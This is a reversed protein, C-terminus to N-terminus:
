IYNITHGGIVYINDPSGISCLTDTILVTDEDGVSFVPDTSLQTAFSLECANVLVTPLIVVDYDNPPNVVDFHDITPIHDSGASLAFVPLYISDGETETLSWRRYNFGGLILTTLKKIDFLFMDKTSGYPLLSAASVDMASIELNDQFYHNTDYVNSKGLINLITGDYINIKGSLIFSTNLESNKGINRLVPDGNDVMCNRYTFITPCNVFEDLYPNYASLSLSYGPYTLDSLSYTTTDPDYLLSGLFRINSKEGRFLSFPYYGSGKYVFGCNSITIDSDSIMLGNSQNANSNFEFCVNEIEVGGTMSFNYAATIDYLDSPSNDPKVKPLPDSWVSFDNDFSSVNDIYLSLTPDACFFINCNIKRPPDTFTRKPEYVSGTNYRAKLTLKFPDLTFTTFACSGYMKGTPADSNWVYVGPEYDFASLGLSNIEEQSVFRASVKGSTTPETSYFCDEDIYINTNGSINNRAYTIAKAVTEFYPVMVTPDNYSGDVARDIALSDTANVHSPRVAINFTKTATPSLKIEGNDFELGGGNKLRVSFRNIGSINDIDIGDGASPAVTKIEGSDFVLGGNNKLRVSFYATTEDMDIRIGSSAEDVIISELVDDIADFNANITSLSNGVCETKSIQDTVRPYSM